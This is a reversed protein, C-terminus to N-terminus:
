RAKIYKDLITTIIGYVTNFDKTGWIYLDSVKKCMRSKIDGDKLLRSYELNKDLTEYIKLILDERGYLYLSSGITRTSTDLEDM